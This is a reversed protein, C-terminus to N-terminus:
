ANQNKEPKKNIIFRVKELILKREEASMTYNKGDFLPALENAKSECARVMM